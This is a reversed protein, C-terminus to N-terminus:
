SITRCSRKAHSAYPQYPPHGRDFPVRQVRAIRIGHSVALIYTKFALRVSLTSGRYAPAVMLKTTISTHAPHHREVATGICYLESYGGLDHTDKCFNCRVTGVIQGSDYAVFIYGEEDLPERITRRMHDAHTQTRGLAEVYVQYRFRYLAQRARENDAIRTISIPM